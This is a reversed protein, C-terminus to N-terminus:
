FRLVMQLLQLLTLNVTLAWVSSKDNKIKESVKAVGPTYAELCKIVTQLKKKVELEIKGGLHMLFTQDSVNLIRVNKISRLSALIKEEHNSDIANITLDRVIKNGKISIVDIGAMDGNSDSIKKLIKALM